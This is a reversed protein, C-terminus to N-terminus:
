RLQQPLVRWDFILIEWFLTGSGEFSVASPAVIYELDDLVAATMKSLFMMQTANPGFHRVFCAYRPGIVSFLHLCLSSFRRHFSKACAPELKGGWIDYADVYWMYTEQNKACTSYCYLYNIPAGALGNVSNPDFRCPMQKGYTPKKTRAPYKPKSPDWIVLSFLVWENVTKCPCVYTCFPTSM